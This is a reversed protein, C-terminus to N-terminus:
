GRVELCGNADKKTALRPVRLMRRYCSGRPTQLLIDKGAKSRKGQMMDRSGGKETTKVSQSDIIAASPDKSKGLLERLTNRVHDHVRKLVGEKRWKMFQSYVTQWPPFDHPLLRWSCGSRLLYFIADLIRRKGHKSKRGGKSYDRKEVIPQILQWEKDSLEGPYRKKDM